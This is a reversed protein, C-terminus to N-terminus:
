KFYNIANQNPGFAYFENDDAAFTNLFGVDKLEMLDELLSKSKPFASYLKETNIYGARWQSLACIERLLNINM